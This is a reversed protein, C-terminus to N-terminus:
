PEWLNLDEVKYRGEGLHTVYCRFNTRIMAGFTNESDVYSQIFFENSDTRKVYDKYGYPFKATSPAKLNREVELQAAVWADLEDFEEKEKAQSGSSDGCLPCFIATLMIAVVALIIPIFVKLFRKTDSATHAEKPKDTM